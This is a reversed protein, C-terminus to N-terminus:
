SFPNGPMSAYAPSRQDGSGILSSWASTTLTCPLPRTTILPQAWAPIMLVTSYARFIVPTSFTYATNPPNWRVPGIKAGTIWGVMSAIFVISGAYTTGICQVPQSAILRNMASIGPRDIRFVTPVVYTKHFSGSIKKFCDCNVTIYA